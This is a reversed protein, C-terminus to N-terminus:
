RWTEKGPNGSEPVAKIKRVMPNKPDAAWETLSGAYVQMKPNGLIEHGAFWVLAAWRGSNCFTISASRSRVGAAAFLKTLTAADRFRGGGDVTVWAGPLNKAGPLTGARALGESKNIGQYQDAPRADILAGKAISLERVDQILALTSFDPRADFRGSRPAETGRAVPNRTEAQWALMGGDLLSVEGLGMVKLLWYIRAADAMERAEKGEAVLVVHSRTTIGLRGILLSLKETGPPAGKLPAPELRWPDSNLDTHVAGPIHADEYDLGERLDLLFVGPRGLNERVWLSNVLPEAAVANAICAGWLMLAMALPITLRASPRLRQVPVM